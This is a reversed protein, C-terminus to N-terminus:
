RTAARPMSCPGRHNGASSGSSRSMPLALRAGPPAQLLDFMNQSVRDTLQWPYKVMPLSVFAHRLVSSSFVQPFKLLPSAILGYFFGLFLARCIHLNMGPYQEYVPFFHRFLFLQFVAICPVVGTPSILRFSLLFV